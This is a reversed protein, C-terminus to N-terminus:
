MVSVKCCSLMMVVGQLLVADCSVSYCSLIVPCKVVFLFLGIEEQIVPIFHFLHIEEM